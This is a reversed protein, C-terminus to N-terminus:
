GVRGAISREANRVDCSSAPDNALVLPLIRFRDEPRDIQKVRFISEMQYQWLRFAPIDGFAGKYQPWDSTRFKSLNVTSAVPAQATEPVSPLSAPVHFLNGRTHVAPTSTFIHAAQDVNGLSPDVHPPQQTSTADESSGNTTEGVPPKQQALLDALLKRIEAMEDQLSANDHRLQDNEAKTRTVDDNETLSSTSQQEMVQGTLSPESALISLQPNFSGPVSRRPKSRPLPARIAPASDVSIQNLTLTGPLPWTATVVPYGQPNPPNVILDWQSQIFPLGASTLNTALPASAARIPSHLATGPPRHYSAPSAPQQHRGPFIICETNNVRNLTEGPNQQTSRPLAPNDSSSM